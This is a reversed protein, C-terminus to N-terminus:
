PDNREAFHVCRFDETQIRQAYTFARREEQSPQGVLLMVHNERAAPPRRSPDRLARGVSTYHGHVRNMVYVFIPTALVVMWGGHTFRTMLVIVLVVFTAIAGIGNMVAFRRWKPESRQERFWHRVMGSQSLTLATFVGMVYLNILRSVEAHFVFTLVSALVAVGLIGNSFALRDGRNMLQRPMFRDRALVASLRPFDAYSTNAALFLILATAALVAYFMPSKGYVQLAILGVVTRTPTPAFVHFLHSLVTIGLFLFALLSAMAILTKAANTSAPEKFAPIGNSIAEIGTVAASGRAFATLLLFITVPKMESPYTAAVPHAHFVFFRVIGYVITAGVLIVFAYTPVAFITGSERIGRLNMITIFWIVALSMVVRYGHLGPAFTIISAVGAAVSV